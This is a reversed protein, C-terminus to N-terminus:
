DSQRDTQKDAQRDRGREGMYLYLQENKRNKQERTQDKGETKKIKGRGTHMSSYVM